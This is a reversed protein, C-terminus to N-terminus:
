NFKVVVTDDIVRISGDDPYSAMQKVIQNDEFTNGDIYDSTFGTLLSIQQQYNYPEFIFSITPEGQIYNNVIVGDTDKLTEDSFEEYNVFSVQM